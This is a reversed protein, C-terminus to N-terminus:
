QGLTAPLCYTMWREALRKGPVHVEIEVFVPVPPLM